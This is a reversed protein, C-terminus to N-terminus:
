KTEVTLGFVALLLAHDLTTKGTKFAVDLETLRDVASKLAKKTFKQAQRRAMKVAYEKVGLTKAVEGDSQQSLSVHLLRRFHSYLAVFIKQKSENKGLLEHLVRYADANRRAAVHETFEYVKYESDATVM